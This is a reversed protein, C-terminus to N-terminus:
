PIQYVLLAAAQAAAEGARHLAKKAASDPVFVIDNALLTQDPAQGELIKGLNVPIERDADSAQTNKRIIVTKKPVATSKLNDALAVAKLLTMQERDNNLVFGGARNVAGVVYVIGARQVTVRDGPYLDVNLAPDGEELLRKLNVVQVRLSPSSTHVIGEVEGHPEVYNSASGRTITATNGADDTLGEAQSIAELLTIRTFVPYIQPRKVAGGIAISHARSAKVQVSVRPHTVMGAKQLKESIEDSLQAPTLGAAQVSESLLPISISGAPDVRYERSIEPVDLAYLELTDDPSILFEQASGLPASYPYLEFHSNDGTSEAALSQARLPCAALLGAVAVILAGPVASTLRSALLYPRRSLGCGSRTRDVMAVGTKERV